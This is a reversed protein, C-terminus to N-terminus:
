QQYKRLLTQLKEERVKALTNWVKDALAPDKQVFQKSLMLYYPKSEYPPTAVKEVDTIKNVALYLDGTHEQMAYAAIRGATLKKFNQDTTRAEETKIGRKDLDAGISYTTNFGITGGDLGTFNKGDWNFPSGKAKYFVYSLSTMRLAANDRGDKMPFVGFQTREDKFSYMFAGVLEGNQLSDWVRRVPLRVYEFELGLEKAVQNLLDVAVGPPSAIQNSNGLQYLESEVDSYGFKLKQAWATGCLLLALVCVLLRFFRNM